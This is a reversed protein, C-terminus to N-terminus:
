LPSINQPTIYVHLSAIKTMDCEICNNLVYVYNRFADVLKTLYVQIDAYM